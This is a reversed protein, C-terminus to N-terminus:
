KADPAPTSAPPPAATAAPPPTPGPDRGGYTLPWLADIFPQPLEWVAGFEEAGALQTNGGLRESLSLTTTSAQTAAPGGVLTIAVELQYKWPREEGAVRVTPAFHDEVFRAARLTRLQALLTQQPDDKALPGTIQREFVVAKSAADLLRIGTIQAGAPLERLLRDRYDLARLPVTSIAPDVRYVSTSDADGVRAFALKRDANVGIRLTLNTAPQNPTGAITLVIVRVPRNFGWNELDAKSPSDNVFDLASLQALQDLFHQVTALDANQTQPGHGQGRRVIQWPISEPSAGATPDLRQLALEPEDPNTADSISLATVARPDFDLLRPERLKTQANDLTDKLAGPIVVTFFAENKRDKTDAMRAYYETDAPPSGAAPATAGGVPAFLLLTESRNNGELTIRQPSASAVDPPFSPVFSKVRLGNLRIITEETALKSARAQFPAEFSWHNDDRRLRIPAAAGLNFFRVEYVQISFLTDAQLQDLPQTLSEAISRNVVHVNEGDPSLLYLLNGDKTKSGIRLSVPKPGSGDAAKPAAPDLSSFTVTLAPPELGYDALSQGNKKLDQVSFSTEHDLLLLDTIIRRVAIPNAPWDFPKTLYWVDGRKVLSVAPGPGAIELSQINAAEAGLVRRRAEQSARETRWGREFQFIFFFLAVNLFLLVLTFKSRM